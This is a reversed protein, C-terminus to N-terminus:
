RSDVHYLNFMELKNRSGFFCLSNTINSHKCAATCHQAGIGLGSILQYVLLPLCFYMCLVKSLTLKCVVATAAIVRGYGYTKM